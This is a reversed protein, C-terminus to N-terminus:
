VSMSNYKFRKVNKNCFIYSDLKSSEHSTSNEINLKYNTYSVASNMYFQRLIIIVNKNYFITLQEYLSDGEVDYQLNARVFSYTLQTLNQNSACYQLVSKEPLPFMVEDLLHVVGNTVINDRSSITSGTATM